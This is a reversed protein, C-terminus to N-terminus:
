GFVLIQFRVCMTVFVLVLTPITQARGFLCNLKSIYTLGKFNYAFHFTTSKRVQLWESVEWLQFACEISVNEPVSDYIFFKLFCEQAEETCIKTLNIAPLKTEANFPFSLFGQIFVSRLRAVHVDVAVSFQKTEDQDSGFTIIIGKEHFKDEDTTHLTGYPITLGVPKQSKLPKDMNWQSWAIDVGDEASLLFSVQMFDEAASVDYAQLIRWNLIRAVCDHVYKMVGCEFGPGKPIRSARLLQILESVTLAWFEEASNGVIASMMHEMCIASMPFQMDGPIHPFLRTSIAKPVCFFAGEFLQTGTMGSYKVFHKQMDSSPSQRLISNRRHPELNGIIESQKENDQDSYWDTVNKQFPIAPMVCRLEIRVQMLLKKVM